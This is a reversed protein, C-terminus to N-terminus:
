SRPPRHPLDEGTEGMGARISMMHNIAALPLQLAVITEVQGNHLVPQAIFAAPEGDSPAYPEFDAFGFRKTSLM